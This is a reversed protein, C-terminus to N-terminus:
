GHDSGVTQGGHGEPSTVTDYVALLSALGAAPTNRLQYSARAAAGRERAEEGTISVLAEALGEASPDVVWGTTPDVITGVSGGSVTLVGRGRGFAEAVALPYGEFVRSPVVVYASQGMAEAVREPAVQGLWTISPDVAAAGSVVDGLPGEGAVVLRQQPHLGRRRALAWADLLLDIGKAEDLRGVYLVDQGPDGAPGPDPVWTPRVTIREAPLGFAVLMDRMFPTLALYRAVGNRWTRRHTVMGLAVPVTQVRSDRYCGHEVAPLGLRTGVCDTCIRHDRLHLGNACGHRYNHVTQVVPVDYRGAVHVVWPSILPQVQHLHVLDPRSSELLRAFRRVGSPSYVPGSAARLVGSVGRITDSDEFMEVVEIGGERLLSVEARVLQNEGSPASSRYFSHAVLVRM